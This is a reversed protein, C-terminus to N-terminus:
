SRGKSRHALNRVPTKTWNGLSGMPGNDDHRWGEAAGVIRSRLLPSGPNSVHLTSTSRGSPSRAVVVPAAGRVMWM